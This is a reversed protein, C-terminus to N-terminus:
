WVKVRTSDPRYLKDTPKINFAKYFAPTNFLPGNVRYM